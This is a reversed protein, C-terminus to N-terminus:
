WRWRDAVHMLDAGEDKKEQFEMWDRNFNSQLTGQVGKRGARQVDNMSDGADYSLECFFSVKGQLFIKLVCKKVYESHNSNRLHDYLPNFM